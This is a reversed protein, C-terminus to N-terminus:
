RKALAEVYERISPLGLVRERFFENVVDGVAHITEDTAGGREGPDEGRDLASKVALLHQLVASETEGELVATAEMILEDIQRQLLDVPIESDAGSAEDLTRVLASIQYLVTMKEDFLERLYAAEPYRGTIRFVNYMRKAAKGFNPKEVTYKRVEKELADVYEDLADGAMHKALKSFIPVSAADLYVEQFYSDLYGDLPTISGDPAEWTVDLMNSANSLKGRVPDAVVWDLKCWGPDLAAEDWSHEWASGDPLTGTLRGERIEELTWAIPSGAKMTEGRRLVDVPYSGLKAEIFRHTPGAATALAKERMIEALIRCAGERTPALINVREFFDCDGPFSQVKSQAASGSLALATEVRGPQDDFGVIRGIGRFYQLDKPSFDLMAVRHGFAGTAVDVELDSGPGQGAAMATLWRLAEEEDMEVGLRAASQLINRLADDASSGSTGAEEAPRETTGAM